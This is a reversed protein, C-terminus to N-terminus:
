HTVDIYIKSVTINKKLIIIAHISTTPYILKRIICDIDFSPSPPKLILNHVRLHELNDCYSPLFEPMARIWYFGTLLDYVKM